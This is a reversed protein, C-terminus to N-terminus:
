LADTQREKSNMKENCLLVDYLVDTCWIYLLVMGYLVGITNNITGLGVIIPNKQARIEPKISSGSIYPHFILVM